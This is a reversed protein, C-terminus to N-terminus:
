IWFTFNDANIQNVNADAVGNLHALFTEGGAGTGNADYSLVFHDAGQRYVLLMGDTPFASTGEAASVAATSSAYIGDTVVLIDIGSHSGALLQATVGSAFATSHVGVDYLANASTVGGGLGSYGSLQFGLQDAGSGGTFDAIVDAGAGTGDFLFTDSGADGTLTDIGAGGNLLDSGDGGFMGDAGDGGDITDNGAEGLLWDDGALGRIVDNGGFGDMWNNINNGVLTDDFGISGRLYEIGTYSDGTADGSAGVGSLLNVDVGASSGMYSAVDYGAGGSLSDAGAGGELLDNGTQDAGRLPSWSKLSFEAEM